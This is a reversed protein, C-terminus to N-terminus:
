RFFFQKKFISLRSPVINTGSIQKLRMNEFCVKRFILIPLFPIKAVMNTSLINASGTDVKALAAAVGHVHLTLRDGVFFTTPPVTLTAPVPKAGFVIIVTLM